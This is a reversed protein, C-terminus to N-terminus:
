KKVGPFGGPYHKGLFIELDENGGKLLGPCARLAKSPDELLLKEPEGSFIVRSGTVTIKPKLYEDFGAAIFFHLWLSVCFVLLLASLMVRSYPKKFSTYFVAPAIPLFGLVLVLAARAPASPDVVSFPIFPKVFTSVPKVLVGRVPVIDMSKSFVRLDIAFVAVALVAFVVGFLACRKFFSRADFDRRYRVARVLISLFTLGYVTFVVTLLNRRLSIRSYEQLRFGVPTEKVLSPQAAAAEAYWSHWKKGYRLQDLDFYADGIRKCLAARLLSAPNRKAAKECRRAYALREKASVGQNGNIYPALPDRQLAAASQPAPSDMAQVPAAAEWPLSVTDGAHALLCAVIILMASKM